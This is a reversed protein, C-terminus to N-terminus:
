RVAEMELIGLEYPIKAIEDLSLVKGEPLRTLLRFVVAIDGPQMKIAVRNVPINIGTLESMLSATAEHGVASTFGQLLLEKVESIDSKRFGYRGYETIVPTNLVFTPM